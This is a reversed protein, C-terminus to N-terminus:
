SLCPEENQRLRAILRRRSPVARNPPRAAAQVDYLPGAASSAGYGPAERREKCALNRTQVKASQPFHRAPSSPAQLITKVKDTQMFLCTEDTCAQYTFEVTLETGAPIEATAELRLTFTASGEHAEVDIGFAASHEVRPKPEAILGYLKFPQGKALTIETRVPGGDPQTISAIHWGPEIEVTLQVTFTTGAPLVAAPANATLTARVQAQIAPASGLALTVYLLVLRIVRALAPLFPAPIPCERKTASAPLPKARSRPWALSASDVPHQQRKVVTLQWDGAGARSGNTVHMGSCQPIPGPTALPALGAARLRVLGPRAASMFELPLARLMFPLRNLIIM